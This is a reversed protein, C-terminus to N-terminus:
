QAAPTQNVQTGTIDAVTLFVFRTIGLSALVIILGVITGRIIDKAKSIEDESGRAWIWLFGAYLLLGVCVAALLSLGANVLNFAVITPSVKGLALDNNLSVKGGNGLLGTLDGQIPDFDVAFTAVPVCVIIVLSLILLFRKM